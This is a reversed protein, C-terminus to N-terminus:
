LTEDHPLAELPCGACTARVRCNRKAVEVLLAHYEQYVKVDPRMARHFLARVSEYGEDGSLVFHRRLVRKTYADVVFSPRDGAYLLIADATEPGIGHISMLRRRVHDLDGRLLTALRGGHEDWLYAVFAKLRRAKVRYTGSPRIHEALKVECVERLGRWSLLKAQALNRIAKEVNSWATNQTLIAGVVVETVTDAPWWHQPGFARMLRQYVTRLTRNTDRRPFQNM